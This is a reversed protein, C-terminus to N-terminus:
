SRVGLAVFHPIELRWKQPINLRRHCVPVNAASVAVRTQDVQGARETERSVVCRDSAVRSLIYLAAPVGSLLPTGYRVSRLNEKGRTQAM